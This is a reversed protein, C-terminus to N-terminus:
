QLTEYIKRRWINKKQNEVADKIYELEKGTYPPVNFNIKM